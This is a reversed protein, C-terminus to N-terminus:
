RGGGITRGAYEGRGYSLQRVIDRLLTTKGCGPPSVILTNHVREDVLYPMVPNAAGFIEHSIRINMYRIYKMNRVKGDAEMVVEGAIGIRHGGPMTLFGQRLEEEFAYVSCRCIHNLIKELVSACVIYGNEPTQRSCGEGDVFWERNKIVVIAPLEARLRVEQVSEIRKSIGIWLSKFEDPFIALFDQAKDM